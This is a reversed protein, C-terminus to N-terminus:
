AGPARYTISKKAAADIEEPTVLVTTQITVAGSTNVALAVAACTAADPYESIVYVDAEGFAYYFAHMKGGAKETLQRITERRKTGGEKLLGKAGEANYTARFLYMPM